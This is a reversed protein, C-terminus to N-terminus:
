YYETVVHVILTAVVSLQPLYLRGISSGMASRHEPLRSVLAQCLLTRLLQLFISFQYGIAFHGEDLMDDFLFSSCVLIQLRPIVVLM